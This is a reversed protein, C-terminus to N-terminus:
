SSGVVPAAVPALAVLRAVHVFLDCFPLNTVM